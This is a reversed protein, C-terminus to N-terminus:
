NLRGKWWMWWAPFYARDQPPMNRWDYVLKKMELRTQLRPQDQTARPNELLGVEYCRGILPPLIRTLAGAQRDDGRRLADELEDILRPIGRSGIRFLEHDSGSSHLASIARGIRFQWYLHGLLWAVLLLLPASVLWLVLARPFPPKPAMEM